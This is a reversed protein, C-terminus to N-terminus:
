RESDHEDQKAVVNSDTSSTEVTAVSEDVTLPAGLRALSAAARGGSDGAGVAARYEVIARDRDGTREYAVGLNNRVFAVEPLKSKAAELYPLADGSRGGQLLAWGLTNAIWGNEPDLEHARTLEALGDEARGLSHLARGRLHHADASTDELSVASEAAELAGKPNGQDMRVRALNVWSKVRQGDLETARVLARESDVLNGQKKLDLGLMYCESATSPLAVPEPGPLVTTPDISTTGLIPSPSPTVLSIPEAEVSSARPPTRGENSSSCGSHVAAALIVGGLVTGRITVLQRPTNM